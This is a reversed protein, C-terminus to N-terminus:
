NGYLTLHGGNRFTVWNYYTQDGNFPKEHDGSFTRDHTSALSHDVNPVQVAHSGSLVMQHNGFATRLNECMATNIILVTKDSNLTRMQSHENYLTQTTDLVATMEGSPLCTKPTNNLETLQPCAPSKKQEASVVQQNSSATEGPKGFHFNIAKGPYVTAKLTCSKDHTSLSVFAMMTQKCTPMESSQGSVLQSSEVASPQTNCSRPQSVDTNEAM